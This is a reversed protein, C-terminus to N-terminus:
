LPMVSAANVPGSVACYVSGFYSKHFVSLIFDTPCMGDEHRTEAYKHHIKGTAQVMATALMLAAIRNLLAVQCLSVWATLTRCSLPALAAVM